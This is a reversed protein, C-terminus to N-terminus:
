QALVLPTPVQYGSGWSKTTMRLAFKEVDKLQKTHKQTNQTNKHTKTHKTHKQTNKHTKTHKTHKQMYPNWVPSAYKLHPRVLSLNTTFDEICFVLFREPKQAFLTWTLTAKLQVYKM